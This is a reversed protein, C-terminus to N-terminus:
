GRPVAPETERDGFIKSALSEIEAQRSQFAPGLRQLEFLKPELFLRAPPNLEQARAIRMLLRRAARDLEHARCLAKFLVRPNNFLRHKDHRGLVRAVVALVIFIGVVILFWFLLDTADFHERKERFGSGMDRLVSRDALLALGGLRTM